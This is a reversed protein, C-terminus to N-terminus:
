TRTRGSLQVQHLKAPIEDHPDPSGQAEEELMMFSKERGANGEVTAEDIVVERDFDDKNGEDDDERRKRRLRRMMMGEEIREVE